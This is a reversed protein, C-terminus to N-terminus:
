KEQGQLDSVNGRTWVNKVELSFFGFDRPDRYLTKLIAARSGTILCISCFTGFFSKMINKSMLTKSRYLLCLQLFSPWLSSLKVLGLINFVSLFAEGRHYLFCMSSWIPDKSQYECGGCPVTKILEIPFLEQSYSLVLFGQLSLMLERMSQGGVDPM